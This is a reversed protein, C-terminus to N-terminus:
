NPLLFVAFGYGSMASDFYDAILRGRTKGRPELKIERKTLDLVFLRAPVAFRCRDLLRGTRRPPSDRKLRMSEREM